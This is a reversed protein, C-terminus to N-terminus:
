NGQNGEKMDAPCVPALCSVVESYVTNDLPRVRWYYNVGPAIGEVEISIFSQEGEEEIANETVPLLLLSSDPRPPFQVDVPRQFSNSNRVPIFFTYVKNAFGQKYVTMELQQNPLSGSESVWNIRALGTNIKEDSCYCEVTFNDVSIAQYPDAGIKNKRTACSSLVLTSLFLLLRKM